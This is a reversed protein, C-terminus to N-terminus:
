EAKRAARRRPAASAPKARQTKAGVTKRRAPKKAPGSARKANLLMLAEDLTVAEAAMAKPLTANVSGDTVYPGYRGLKVVISQGSAPDAGLTRGPDAAPRRGGNAGGSEKSVILDIARNAGIEFVDDDKGLNAYTKGHQVYPGYRGIGVLIPQGTEPHAAVPRPLALLRLAKDLDVAEPALGKPLSGRKPKEGEGLQVFPGFRGDRLTVPLRTEPDDGLV